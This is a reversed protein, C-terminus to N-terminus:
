REAIISACCVVGDTIGAAYRCGTGSNESADIRGGVLCSATGPFQFGVAPASAAWTSPRRRHRGRRRGPGLLRTSLRLKDHAADFAYCGPFATAATFTISTAAFTSGDCVQWGPACLAGAQGVEGDWAGACAAVTPFATPDVFGERTGDACGLALPGAGDSGGADEIVV